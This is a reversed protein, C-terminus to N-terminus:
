FNGDLLNGLVDMAQGEGEIELEFVRNFKRETAEAIDQQNSLV